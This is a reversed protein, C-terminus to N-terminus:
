PQKDDGRYQDPEGNPYAAVGEDVRLAVGVHRIIRPRAGVTVDHAIVEVCPRAGAVAGDSDAVVTVGWWARDRLVHGLRLVAEPVREIEGGATVRVGQADRRAVVLDGLRRAPFAVGLQGGGDIGEVGVGPSAAQRAGLTM